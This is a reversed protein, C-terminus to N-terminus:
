APLGQLWARLMSGGARKLSPGHPRAERRLILASKSM